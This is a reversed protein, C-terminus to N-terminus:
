QPFIGINNEEDFEAIQNDTDVQVWMMEIPDPYFPNTFELSTSTEPPVPSDVFIRLDGAQEPLPRLHTFYIDIYFGGIEKDSRNAVSIVPRQSDLGAYGAPTLDPPAHVRKIRVSVKRSNGFNDVAIVFIKFSDGPNPPLYGPSVRFPPEAVVFNRDPLINFIVHSIGSEDYTNATISYGPSLIHIETPAFVTLSPPMSDEKTPLEIAREAAYLLASCLALGIALMIKIKM